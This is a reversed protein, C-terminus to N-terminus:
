LSNPHKGERALPIIENQIPIKKDKKWIIPCRLTTWVQHSIAAGRSVAKIRQKSTNQNLYEDPQQPVAYYSDRNILSDTGECPHQLTVNTDAPAYTQAFVRTYKKHSLKIKYHAAPTSCTCILIEDNRHAEASHADTQDRMGREPTKNRSVWINQVFFEPISLRRKPKRRKVTKRKGLKSPRITENNRALSRSFFM